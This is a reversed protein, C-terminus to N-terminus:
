RDMVQAYLSRLAELHRAPAYRAATRERALRGMARIKGHDRALLDIKEALAEPDGPPCTYGTEGEDVVEALGGSNTSVVPKGLAFAELAALGFSEAGESPIVVFKSRAVEEYFKSGDLWGGFTVNDAKLEARLKELDARLHGDGLIRLRVHPIRAMARILTAVGKGENLRGTYLVEDGPEFNAPYRTTDVFHPIVTIQDGPMGFEIFKDRLYHSPAIFRAVNREFVGSWHHVYAEVSALLSAPRSDKCNHLTTMYYRHPKCRECREGHAFLRWHPCILQHDHLTQVIPIGAKRLVPLFSPSIHNHINHLHAVAPRTEQILAEVKRAAEPWWIANMGLRLKEGLSKGAMTLEVEPLFYEQYPSEVNQPHQLSFPIVRDGHRELLDKTEFLYREAGGCMFYFKHVFLIDM